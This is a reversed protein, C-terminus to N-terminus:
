KRSVSSEFPPLASAISSKRFKRPASGDISGNSSRNPKSYAKLWGSEPRHYGAHRAGVFYVFLFASGRRPGARKMETAPVSHVHRQASQLLGGQPRHICRCHMKDGPPAIARLAREWLCYLAGCPSGKIMKTAPAHNARNRCGGVSNANPLMLCMM